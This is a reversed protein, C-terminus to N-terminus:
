AVHAMVFVIGFDFSILFDFVTGILRLLGYVNVSGAAGGLRCCLVVVFRGLRASAADRASRRVFYDM